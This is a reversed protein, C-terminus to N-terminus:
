PRIESTDSLVKERSSYEGPSFVQMKGGLLDAFNWQLTTQVLLETLIEAHEKITLFHCHRGKLSMKHNPIHGGGVKVLSLRGQSLSLNEGRQSGLAESVTRRWDSPHKPLFSKSPRGRRKNPSPLSAKFHTCYVFMRFPIMKLSLVKELKRLTASKKM